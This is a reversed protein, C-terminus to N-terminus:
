FFTESSSCTPLKDDDVQLLSGLVLLSVQDNVCLAVLDHLLEHGPQLDWHRDVCACVSNNDTMGDCSGLGLWIAAAHHAACHSHLAIM